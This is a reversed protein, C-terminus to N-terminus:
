QSPVKLRQGSGDADLRRGFAARGGFVEEFFHQMEGPRVKALVWM